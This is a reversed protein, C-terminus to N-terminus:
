SPASTMPPLHTHAPAITRAPAFPTTESQEFPRSAPRALSGRCSEGRMFMEGLDGAGVGGGVGVGGGFRPVMGAACNSRRRRFGRRGGCRAPRLGGAGPPPTPAPHSSGTNCLRAARQGGCPGAIEAAGDGVGRSRRPSKEAPLRQLSKKHRDGHVETAIERASEAASSGRPWARWLRPAQRWRGVATACRAGFAGDPNAAAVPTPFPPRPHSSAGGSGRGGKRTM